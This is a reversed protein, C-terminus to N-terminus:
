ASFIPENILKRALRGLESDGAVMLALKLAVAMNFRDEASQLNIGCIKEVMQMRYRVSNPHLYLAKATARYNCGYNLFLCLTVALNGNNKRDHEIVPKLYDDYFRTVEGSSIPTCFLRYFGLKEFCFVNSDGNITAGVEIAHKAEQYGKVYDPYAYVRGIGIGFCDRDATKILESCLKQASKPYEEHREPILVVMTDDKYVSNIVKNGLWSILFRNVTSHIGSGNVDIKDQVRIIFVRARHPLDWGLEAARKAAEEWTEFQSSLLQELFQREYKQREEQMAVIRQMEIKTAAIAFDLLIFDTRDFPHGDHFLYIQGKAKGRLRLECGIWEWEQGNEVVTYHKIPEKINYKYLEDLPRPRCEAAQELFYPPFFKEPAEHQEREFIVAAQRGTWRQLTQVMGKLGTSGINGMLEERVEELRRFRQEQHCMVGKMIYELIPIYSYEDSISFISFGLEDAKEQMAQPLKHDFFRLKIGLAAVKARVLGEIVSIQKAEDNLLSYATTIVLEGGRMYRPGDPSELITVSTIKSNLGDKGALVQSKSFFDTKLLEKLSIEM